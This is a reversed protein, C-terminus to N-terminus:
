SGDGEPQGSAFVRRLSDVNRRMVSLYDGEAPRNAAPAFVVSEVGLERLAAATEALPEAEWLMWGAPHEDLIARLEAWGARDPVEDPEFHVSRLNLGYRAALYQYVPHSGLIPKGAGGGVAEGVADVLARDLEELDQQLAQLNARVRIEYSGDIRHIARAIETAQAIAMTPDLWTTFAVQGHDHEGEPGHTHTVADGSQVYRDTVERTTVVVRSAPLSVRDVWAEYGAGNLLILGASQYASVTEADPSWFAPDVGPPAPFTVNVIDSGVREAFYALPYNVTFVTVRDAAGVAPSARNSSGASAQDSREAAEDCAAVSFATALLLGACRSAARSRTTIGTKRDPRGKKTHRAPRGAYQPQSGSHM